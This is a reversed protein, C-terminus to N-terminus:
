RGGTKRKLQLVSWDGLRLRRELVLGQARHAALV